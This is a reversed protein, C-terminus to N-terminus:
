LFNAPTDQPPLTQMESHFSITPFRNAQTTRRGGRRHAPGLKFEASSLTRRDATAVIRSQWARLNHIRWALGGIYRDMIGCTGLSVAAAARFRRITQSATKQFLPSIALLVAFLPIITTWAVILYEWTAPTIFGTCVLITMLAVPTNWVIGIVLPAHKRFPQVPLHDSM